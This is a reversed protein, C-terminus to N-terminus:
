VRAGALDDALGRRVDEGLEVDESYEVHDIVLAVPGAGFQEVQPASFRFRLYHVTTTVDARTLADEDIPEAAVVGGDALRFSVAREIGVLRPLWHRLADKDDIEIFLTAVLEGDGPILQNYVDVEHSIQEDSLMKEARAMEQVQFRMTDTHEFTLTVIPGIAVRRHRKMEIIHARFADREREYERLDRIDGAALKKM